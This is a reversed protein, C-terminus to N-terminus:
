FLRQAVVAIQWFCSLQQCVIERSKLDEEQRNECGRTLGGMLYWGPRQLLDNIECYHFAWLLCTQPADAIKEGGYM